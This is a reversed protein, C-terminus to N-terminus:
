NCNFARFFEGQQSFKHNVRSGSTVVGDGFEWEFSKIRGDNDRSTSGDFEFLTDTNGEHPQFNFHAVPPITNEIRIKGKIINQKHRNDTVTLTVLLCQGSSEYRHRSLKAKRREAM